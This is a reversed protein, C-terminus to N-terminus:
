KETIGFLHTRQLKEIIQYGVKPQHPAICKTGTHLNRSHDKLKLHRPLPDVFRQVIQHIAGLGIKPVTVPDHRCLVSLNM